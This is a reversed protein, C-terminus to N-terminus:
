SVEPVWGEGGEGEGGWKHSQCGRLRSTTIPKPDPKAEFFKKGSPDTLFITDGENSMDAYLSNLWFQWGNHSIGSTRCPGGSPCDMLGPVHSANLNPDPTAEFFKKGSPDTLFITDGDSSMSAYLSNLWFQSGNYGQPEAPGMAPATSCDPCLTSRDRFLLHLFM